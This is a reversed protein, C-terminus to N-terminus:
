TSTAVARAHTWAMAAPIAASFSWRVWSSEAMPSASWPVFRCRPNVATTAASSLTSAVVTPWTSTFVPLVSTEV